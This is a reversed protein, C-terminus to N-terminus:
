TGCISSCVTQYQNKLIPYFPTTIPTKRAAIWSFFVNVSFNIRREKNQLAIKDYIQPIYTYLNAKLLEIKIWKDIQHDKCHFWMTKIVTVEYTKTDLPTKKM